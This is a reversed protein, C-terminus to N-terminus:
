NTNANNSGSNNTTNGCYKEFNDKGAVKSAEARAKAQYFQKVIQKQVAKKKLLYYQRKFKAVYSDMIPKLQKAKDYRGEAKFKEIARYGLYMFDFYPLVDDNNILFKRNM